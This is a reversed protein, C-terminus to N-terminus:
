RILSELTEFFDPFSVDVADAGEIITEGEAVLAAVALMMALRHDGHSGVVAGHLPTPGNIIFGDDTPMIDAGMKNLEAAVLAIRDTEKVRLEAADKIETTGEAQTALLAILPLEDILKPILAGGIVAGKLRVRSSMVAGIPEGAELREDKIELEAGMMMLVDLFGTRTPNLGIDAVEVSDAGALVGAALFFAASSIDGPVNIDRASFQQREATIRRGDASDPEPEIKISAGLYELMIETHDRSRVPEVVTTKGEALLGATLVATKVQASAVPLTYEIGQLTAGIVALPALRGDARARIDAGMLALPKIIRDVPRRRISDDGTMFTLFNQAALVGPLVRLATGSNGVNLVDDPEELGMLGRGNVIAETKSRDDSAPRLEIEVGLDRLCSLTSLCDASTLLNTIRARGEALASYILARHTVSKDGPVGVRGRVSIPGRQKYIANM